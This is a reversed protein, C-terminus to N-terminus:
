IAYCYQWNVIFKEVWVIIKEVVDRVIITQGDRKKFIWCKQTCIQRKRQAERLARTLIDGRGSHNLDLNDRLEPELTDLAENWLNHTSAGESGADPQVEVPM